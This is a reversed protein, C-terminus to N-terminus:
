SISAAVKALLWYRLFRGVLVIVFFRIPPYNLVGAFIGIADFLPNPIIAVLFIILAGYKKFYKELVLIKKSRELKKRTLKRGSFGFLFSVMDGVAAGLSAIVGVLLPSYLSGGAIVTLFAPGSVFLSASSILNVLFLGILGLSSAERFFDKFIFFSISLVISLAFLLITYIKHKMIEKYKKRTRGKSTKAEM